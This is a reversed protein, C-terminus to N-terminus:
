EVRAIHTIGGYIKELDSLKEIATTMHRATANLIYEEDMMIGVHGKFYVIDNRKIDEKKVKKGLRDIQDCTDRPPCPKGNAILAQQVLGSCDIGFTSRGGYLYPTNLFLTATQALDDPMKFNKLPAIHDTFIWDGDELQTFEGETKKLSTLRSLFSLSITPRSKFSPEPHIHTARVTVIVNSATADKVLQDREVYGTYNDLLGYGYVYAGHSEEVIFEEGYLLQSDKNSIKHPETPEGLIDATPTIVTLPMLNM